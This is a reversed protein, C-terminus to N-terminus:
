SEGARAVIRMRGYLWEKADTEGAAKAGDERGVRAARRWLEALERELNTLDKKVKASGKAMAAGTHQKVVENAEALWRNKQELV